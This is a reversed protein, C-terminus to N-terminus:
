PLTPRMCYTQFYKEKAIKQFLKLLVPALEGKFTQYVDGTFGDSGPSKKVPLNQIATPCFQSNQKRDLHPLLGLKIGLLAGQSPVWIM